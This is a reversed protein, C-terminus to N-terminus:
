AKWGVHLVLLRGKDFWGGFRGAVGSMTSGYYEQM